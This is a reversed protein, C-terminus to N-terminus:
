DCLERANQFLKLWPASPHSRWAPPAYSQQWSLVTREPHPMFANHRGSPDCLGAIGLVSGNPNYPYKETPEGKADVYRGIILGDKQLRELVSPDPFYFRGEGHASHVGLLSGEMGPTLRSRSKEICVSPYRSEFKESRNHMMWPRQMEGLEPYPVLGLRVMLQCGNCIGLSFTDGRAYFDDFVKKVRPDFHIGAAWGTASGFIDAFSFGGVFIAGRYPALTTFSGNRIDQMYVDDPTFGALQFAARMEADGNSGEERIVAVRPRKAETILAPAQPIFTMRYPVTEPESFSVEEEHVQAESLQLRKLETSTSEWLARLATLSESYIPIDGYHSVIMQKRDICLGAIRYREALGAADLIDYITGQDGISFEFVVGPRQGFFHRRDEVFRDRFALVGINGAMSMEAITTFLGGDSVDHCSLILGKEVLKQIADFGAALVVADVDACADGLQGLSQAFASGGLGDGTGLDLYGIRSGVQKLDPTCIMAIDPVMASAKIVLTGPSLVTDDGVKASMSLSDKGGDARIGLECMFSSMALAADYLRAGQGPQKAAWMWNARCEIGERSAIKTGVMDLLAEAVALRAGKAPDILTALPHEGYASATGVTDFHSFAMVGCDAVPLLKAGCHQQQAVLGTVSRDAKETLHKKSGVSVQAFVMQVADEFALDRPIRLPELGIPLRQMEFTKQPLEGLVDKLSLNVPTTGDQADTVVVNGDGTIVGLIECNVQERECISRFLEIDDDRILLGYGEQYEAVWLELVSMTKDGAVIDRIEVRGGEPEMLETIVNSPGGAGQDHISVIPNKDFMEVCARIVRNVRNEMEADGRQVSKLDLEANSTGGEISSASGGGVGIRYASGGIRVIIMGVEPKGKPLSADPVFSTGAAYLVPKIYEVRKGGVIQGFTRCFGGILPEGIKNGYDSIGDSGRVLIDLPSAFTDFIQGRGTEEGPINYGPIHQNGVCYGAGGFSVYAGRGVAFKDRICGGSGTAAGEFPEWMTPHNHTEATIAIHVLVRTLFYPSPTGPKEPVLISVEAGRHVGANDHFAVLSNGPNRKWPEKVIDMLAHPKTDGDIVIKGRFFWHRSHESNGNGIQFLEVDTPNRDLARFLAVYYTIDSEDMGLGLTKNATRLVSAGGGLIDVSRVPEPELDSDFSTLRQPYFTQTMRDCEMRLIRDHEARPASFRRSMEIRRVSVGMNACIRVAGTSFATEINLRPGIELVDIERPLQSTLSITADPRMLVWHVRAQADLALGQPADVYYCEEYGKRSAFTRFFTYLM